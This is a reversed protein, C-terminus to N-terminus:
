ASISPFVISRRLCAVAEQVSTVAQLRRQLSLVRKQQRRLRMTTRATAVFRAVDPNERAAESVLSSIRIKPCEEWLKDRARLGAQNWALWEVCAAECERTAQEAIDRLRADSGGGETSAYSRALAKLCVDSLDQAIIRLASAQKLELAVLKSAHECVAEEEQLLTQLAESLREPWFSARFSGLEAELRTLEITMDRACVMLCDRLDSASGGPSPSATAPAEGTLARRVLESLEQITGVEARYVRRELEACSAPYTTRIENDLSSLLGRLHNRLHETSPTPADEEEM